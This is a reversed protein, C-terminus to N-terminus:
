IYVVCRRMVAFCLVAVGEWGCVGACVGARVCVCMCVCVCVCVCVSVVYSASRPCSFPM